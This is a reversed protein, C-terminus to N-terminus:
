IRFASIVIESFCSKVVKVAANHRNYTDKWLAPCIQDIPKFLFDDCAASLIMDQKTMKFLMDHTKSLKPLLSMFYPKNNALYMKLMSLYSKFWVEDNDREMLIVKADPFQKLLINWLSCAPQDVVADVDKYMKQFISEDVRGEFFDIYNELNYELHEELDHVSYGLITLANAMSKTGTKPHGACIIKM